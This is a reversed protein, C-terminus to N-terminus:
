FYLKNCHQMNNKKTHVQLYRSPDVYLKHETQNDCKIKSYQTPAEYKIIIQESDCCFFYCCIDPWYNCSVCYFVIYCVRAMQPHWIRSSSTFPLVVIYLTLGKPSFLTIHYHMFWNNIHVFVNQQHKNSHHQYKQSFTAMYPACQLPLSFVPHQCVLDPLVLCTWGSQNPGESCIEITTVCQMIGMWVLATDHQSAHSVALPWAPAGVMTLFAPGLSWSPLEVIPFMAAKLLSCKISHSLFIM